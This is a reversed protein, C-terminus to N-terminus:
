EVLLVRFYAKSEFRSGTVLVETRDGEATIPSGINVYTPNVLGNTTWQLQYQKGAVSDWAVLADSNLDRNAQNMKLLSNADTPGTGALHEDGDRMGDGDSDPNEADTGYSKEWSNNLGDGDNDAPDLPQDTAVISADFVTNGDVTFIQSDGYFSADAPDAANFVRVFVQEDNAPRNTVISDSFYGADVLSPSTLHGMGQQSVLTNAPDPTGDVAPPLIAGESSVKLVQVCDGPAASTGTLTQGFEDVIPQSNGIHLPTTIGAALTSLASALFILLVMNLMSNKM